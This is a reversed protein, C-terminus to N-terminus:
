GQAAVLREACAPGRRGDHYGLRWRWGGRRPTHGRSWSGGRDSEAGEETHPGGKERRPAGLWWIEGDVVERWRAVQVTAEYQHHGGMLSGCAGAGDRDTHAGM